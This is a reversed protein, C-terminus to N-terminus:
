DASTATATIYVSNTGPPEVVTIEEVAYDRDLGDGQPPITPRYLISSTQRLPAYLAGPVSGPLTDVDASDTGYFPNTGLLGLEPRDRGDPTVLEDTVSEARVLPSEATGSVTLCRYPWQHQIRPPDDTFAEFFPMLMSPDVPPGRLLLGCRWSPEARDNPCGGEFYFWGDKVPWLAGAAFGPLSQSQETEGTASEAMASREHDTYQHVKEVDELFRGPTNSLVQIGHHRVGYYFEYPDAPELHTNLAGIVEELRDVGVHSMRVGFHAFIPASHNITPTGPLPACVVAQRGYNRTLIRDPSESVVWDTVFSNEFGSIQQSDWTLSTPIDCLEHYSNTM